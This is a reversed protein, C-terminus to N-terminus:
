FDFECKNFISREMDSIEFPSLSSDPNVGLLISKAKNAAEIYEPNEYFFDNWMEKLILNPDMVYNIFDDNVLLKYTKKDIVSNM